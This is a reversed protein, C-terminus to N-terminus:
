KYDERVPTFVDIVVCDMPAFAEHPTNSPIVYYDGEKLSVEVGGIKMDLQGKVIYTIQENIHHHLGLVSGKEISVYGVTADTGHIYNGLIGPSLLKAPIQNISPM